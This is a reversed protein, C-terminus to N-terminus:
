RWEWPNIVSLGIESFDQTNRTALAAGRSLAIAAIQADSQSVPRGVKRRIAFLEAYSEAADSDFPLVRGEFETMFIPRVAEELARRRRGEPLLRLGRLIEGKTIATTFVSAFPQAKLWAAVSAEPKPALANSIVNTDLIVM